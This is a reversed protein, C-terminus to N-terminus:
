RLGEQAHGRLAETPCVLPGAPGKKAPPQAGQLEALARGYAITELALEGQKKAQGASVIAREVLGPLQGTLCTALFGGLQHAVEDGEMEAPWDIVLRLFDEPAFDFVAVASPPGAARPPRRKFPWFM